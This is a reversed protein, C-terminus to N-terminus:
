NIFPCLKNETSKVFPATQHSQVTHFILERRTFQKIKDGVVRGQVFGNNLLIQKAYDLDQHRILIDIDGSRRIYPSAYLQDSLVAGKIVAYPYTRFADFLPKAHKYRENVAFSSALESLKDQISWSMKKALYTCNHSILVDKMQPNNCTGSKVIQRLNLIIEDNTM